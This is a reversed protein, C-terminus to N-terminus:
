SEKVVGYAEIASLRLYMDHPLKQADKYTKTNFAGTEYVISPTELKVQTDNVGVLKGCWIYNLAFVTVTQGLLGLFGENEVETVTTLVKM